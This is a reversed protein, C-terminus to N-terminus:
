HLTRKNRLAEWAQRTSFHNWKRRAMSRRERENINDDPDKRISHDNSARSDGAPISALLRWAHQTTPFRVPVPKAVEPRVAATPATKEPSVVVVAASMPRRLNGLVLLPTGNSVIVQM